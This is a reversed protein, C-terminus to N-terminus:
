ITFSDLRKLWTRSDSVRHIIAQCAGRDMPNELCSYQLPNGHGGGPTKGLGPILGADRLDGANAPPRKVVRGVQSARQFCLHYLTQRSNLLCTNLRQTPFIGQLPSHCGVGHATMWNLQTQSKAVGHVAAHWAERDLALELLRSLSMDMLDAIGDLRRMRQWDTRRGGEIKGLILIKELSDTRWM